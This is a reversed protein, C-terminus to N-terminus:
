KANANAEEMTIYGTSWCRDCDGLAGAEWCESDDSETGEFCQKNDCPKMQVPHSVLTEVSQEVVYEISGCDECRAMCGVVSEKKGCIICRGAAVLADHRRKRSQCSCTEPHWPAYLHSVRIHM